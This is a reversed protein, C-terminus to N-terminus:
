SGPVGEVPRGPPGTRERAGRDSAITYSASVLADVDFAAGLQHPSWGRQRTTADYIPTDSDQQTM